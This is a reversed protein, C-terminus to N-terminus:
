EHKKEKKKLWKICANMIPKVEEELIAGFAVEDSCLFLADDKDKIIKWKMYNPIM